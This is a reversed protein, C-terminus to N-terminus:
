KSLFSTGVISPYKRSLALSLANEIVVQFIATDVEEASSQDSNQIFHPHIKLQARNVQEFRRLIYKTACAVNNAGSYDPFRRYLPSKALKAQFLRINSLFLVIRTRMVWQSNVIEDFRTLSDMLETQAQDKLLKRDYGALDVFFAIATVDEFSHMWKKPITRQMSIDIMNIFINAWKIQTTRIGSTKPQTRIIDEESPVYGPTLIRDIEDLFSFSTLFSCVVLYIDDSSM